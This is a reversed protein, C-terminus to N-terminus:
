LVTCCSNRMLDPARATSTEAGTMVRADSRMSNQHLTDCAKKKSAKQHSSTSGHNPADVDSPSNQSLERNESLQLKSPGPPTTWPSGAEQVECNAFGCTLLLPPANYWCSKIQRKLSRRNLMVYKTNRKVCRERRKGEEQMSEVCKGEEM